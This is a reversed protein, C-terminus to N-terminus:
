GHNRYENGRDYGDFGGRNADTITGTIVGQHQALVPAALFLLAAFLAAVLFRM